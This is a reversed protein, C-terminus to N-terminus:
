EETEEEEEEAEVGNYYIDKSSFKFGFSYSYVDYYYGWFNEFSVGEYVLSGGACYYGEELNNFENVLDSVEEMSEAEKVRELFSEEENERTRLFYKEGFYNEVKRRYDKLDYFQEFTHHHEGARNCLEGYDGAWDNVRIAIELAELEEDSSVILAFSSRGEYLDSWHSATEVSRLKFAEGFDQPTMGKIFDELDQIRKREAELAAQRKEEREAENRKEITEFQITFEEILEPTAEIYAGKSVNPYMCYAPEKEMNKVVSFEDNIIAALHGGKTQAFRISKITKM